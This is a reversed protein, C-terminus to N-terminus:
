DHKWYKEIGLKKIEKLDRQLLEQFEEIRTINKTLNDEHGIGLLSSPDIVIIKGKENRFEVQLHLHAHIGSINGTSGVGGLRTGKKILINPYKNLSIRRLMKQYTNFGVEYNKLHIYLSHMVFGDETEIEPHSLFVYNGNIHGFGAYELLGDYIPHVGTKVRSSIDLGLHFYRPTNNIAQFRFGFNGFYPNIRGAIEKLPLDFNFNKLLFQYFAHWFEAYEPSPIHHKDGGPRLITKDEIAPLKVWANYGM